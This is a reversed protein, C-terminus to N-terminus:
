AANTFDWEDRLLLFAGAFALLGATLRAENLYSQKTPTSPPRSAYRCAVSLSTIAAPDRNL